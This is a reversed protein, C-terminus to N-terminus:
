TGRLDGLRETRASAMMKLRSPICTATTLSPLRFNAGHSHFAIQALSHLHIGSNLRAILHDEIWRDVENVAASHLSVRLVDCCM